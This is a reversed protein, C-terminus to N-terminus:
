FFIEAVLQGSRGQGERCAGKQEDRKGVQQRLDLKVAVVANREEQGEHSADKEHAHDSKQLWVLMVFVLLMAILRGRARVVIWVVVLLVVLVVTVVVFDVAM